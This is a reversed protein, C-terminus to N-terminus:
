SAPRKVRAWVGRHDSLPVDDVNWDLAELGKFYLWDLRVPLGLLKFTPRGGGFPTQFGNEGMRTRVAASQNEGNPIPWMTRWWHVDTTNFDGGIIQPDTSRELADVVPALQALREKSNIRSDLHVNVIRVPGARTAVTAALAIRCRSKFRLRHYELPQVHIETLPDRSLISLGQTETDGFLNAPAYAVHYGLREGLELAFTGGDMSEDGVEQLLLVDFRRQQAWTALADRIRPQAAMNLSGIAFTSAGPRGGDLAAPRHVVPMAVCPGATDARAVLGFLMVLAVVTEPRPGISVVSGGAM